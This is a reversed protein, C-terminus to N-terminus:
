KKFGTNNVANIKNRRNLTSQRVMTPETIPKKHSIDSKVIQTSGLKKALPTPKNLDRGQTASSTNFIPNVDRPKVVPPKPAESFKNDMGGVVKSGSTVASKLKDIASPTNNIGTQITQGMKTNLTNAANLGATAGAKLGSGVASIGKGILKAGSKTADPNGGMLALAGVGGAGYAAKKGFSMEEEPVEPAENTINNTIEDGMGSASALGLGAALGAGAAYKGSNRKIHDLVGEELIKKNVKVIM